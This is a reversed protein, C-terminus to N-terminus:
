SSKKPYAQLYLDAMEAKARAHNEHASDYYPHKTNAQIEEIRRRAMEPTLSGPLGEGGHKRVKDETLTQSVREMMKIFGANQSLGSDKIWKKEADSAFENVAARVRVMKGDFDDGWEKKLSTLGARVSETHENEAAQWVEQNLKGFWEALAKAQRPLIGLEHAQGKFKDMFETDIGKAAEPDLEVNYEKPDRPNGLKHFVEKWDEATAHKGPIPVKDAGIMKQANVFSKALGPIDKIVGLAADNKLDDPLADKWNDPFKIGEAGKAGAQGPDVPPTGGGPKSGGGGSAPNGGAGFIPDVIGGGDKNGAAAPPTGGGAGGNPDGGSGQGSQGPAPNGGAGSGGGGGGGAAGDGEPARLIKSFILNTLFM